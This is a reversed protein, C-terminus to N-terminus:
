QGEKADEAENLNLYKLIGDRVFDHSLKGNTSNRIETHIQKATLEPKAKWCADVIDVMADM